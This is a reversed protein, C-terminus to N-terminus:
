PSNFVPFLYYKTVLTLKANRAVLTTGIYSSASMLFEAKLTRHGLYLVWCFHHYPTAHRRMTNSSKVDNASYHSLWPNCQFVVFYIAVLQSLGKPSDTMSKEPRYRGKGDHLPLGSITPLGYQSYFSSALVTERCENEYTTTPPVGRLDFSVKSKRRIPTM